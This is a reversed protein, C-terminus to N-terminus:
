AKLKHLPTGVSTEKGCAILLFIGLFLLVGSGVKEKLCARRMRYTDISFM